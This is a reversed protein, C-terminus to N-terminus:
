PTRKKPVEKDKHRVVTEISVSLTGTAMDDQVKQAVDAPVSFTVWELARGKVKDPRVSIVRVHALFTSNPKSTFVFDVFGGPKMKGVLDTTGLIVQKMLKNTQSSPKPVPQTDADKEKNKTTTKSTDPPSEPEAGSAFGDASDTAADAPVSADPSSKAADAPASAGPSETGADAPVSTDPSETGADAPVSAGPSDTPSANAPDNVSFPDVAADADPTGADAASHVDKVADSGNAPEAPLALFVVVLISLRIHESM